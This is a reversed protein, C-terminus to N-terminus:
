RLRQTPIPTSMVGLSTHLPDPFRVAGLLSAHDIRVKMELQTNIKGKTTKILKMELGMTRIFRPDRVNEENAHSDFPVIMEPVPASHVDNNPPPPPLIFADDDNNHGDEKEDNSFTPVGEESISEEELNAYTAAEATALPLDMDKDIKEM